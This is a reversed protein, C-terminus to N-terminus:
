EYEIRASVIISSTKMVQLCHVPQPTYSSSPFLKLLDSGRCILADIANLIRPFPKWSAAIDTLVCLVKDRIM